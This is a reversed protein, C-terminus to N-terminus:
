NKPQKNPKSLENMSRESQELLKQLYEFHQKGSLKIMKNLYFRLLM